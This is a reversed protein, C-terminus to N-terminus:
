HESAVAYQGGGRVRGRGWPGAAGRAGGWQGRAVRGARSTARRWTVPSGTLRLSSAGWRGPRCRCRAVRMEDRPQTTERSPRPQWAHQWAVRHVRQWVDGGGTSYPKIFSHGTGEHIPFVRAGARDVHRWVLRAADAKKRGVVGVDPGNCTRGGDIEDASAHHLHPSLAQRQCIVVANPPRGIM